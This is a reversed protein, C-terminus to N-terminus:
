TAGTRGALWDYAAQRHNEEITAHDDHEPFHATVNPLRPILWRSHQPPCRTDALGHWLIVPAQIDSLDFGWPSLFASWDAWWGEDGRTWGDRFGDALYQAVEIGHAPDAGARDGWSKLWGQPRSLQDYMEAAEDRFKARAAARDEFFIRVEERFSEDMGDLFDLGDAGFLGPAFLCVATVIEPLLAATALAYSAPALSAGCRSGASGWSLWCLLSMVQATPWSGAQCRPQAATRLGTM